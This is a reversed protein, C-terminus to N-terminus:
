GEFDEDTNKNTEQQMQELEIRAEDVKLQLLEFEKGQMETRINYLKSDTEFALALRKERLLLAEEQAKSRVIGQKTDNIMENLYVRRIGRFNKTIKEREEELKENEKEVEELYLIEAHIGKEWGEKSSCNRLTGYNLKYENALSLLEEGIEYRYKIEKKIKSSIKRNKKKSMGMDNDGDTIFLNHLLYTINNLTRYGSTIYLFSTM